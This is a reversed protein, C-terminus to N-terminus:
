PADELWTSAHDGNSRVAFACGIPSATTTQSKLNRNLSKLPLSKSALTLPNGLQLKTGRPPQTREWPNGHPSVTGISANYTAEPHYEPVGKVLCWFSRLRSKGDFVAPCYSSQKGDPQRFRLYLSPKPKRM